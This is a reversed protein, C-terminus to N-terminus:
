WVYLVRKYYSGAKQYMMYQETCSFKTGDISFEIPYWQSYVDDEKWFFVYKELAEDRKASYEPKFICLAQRLYQM